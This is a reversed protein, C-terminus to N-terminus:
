GRSRAERVNKDHKLVATDIAELLSREKPPAKVVCPANSAAEAQARPKVCLAVVVPAEQTAGILKEVAAVVSAAALVVDFRGGALIAALQDFTEVTTALHGERKLLRDVPVSKLADPLGSAPNAFILVSAARANKPRQYRTGRGSVLFKDGCAFAEPVMCLGLAALLGVLRYTYSV